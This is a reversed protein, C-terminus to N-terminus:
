SLPWADYAAGLIGGYALHGMLSGVATMPGLSLGAFGPDDQDGRRIAPHVSGITGLMLYTLATLIVGWILGSWWTAAVNALAAGYAWAVALLVGNMHHMALGIVQAEGTKPRAFVSGLLDGIDMRTMDMRVGLKGFLTFVVTAVLGWVIAGIWWIGDWGEVGLGVLALAAPPAMSAM